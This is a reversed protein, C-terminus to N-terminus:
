PRCRLRELRADYVEGAYIESHLIPSSATKWSDDTVVDEGSGDAYQLHLRAVLRTPPPLFSFRVGIWSFGSGFWGDGLLAGMVNEGHAVMSSVDCTQYTVRKRYDSM